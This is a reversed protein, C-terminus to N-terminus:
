LSLVDNIESTADYGLVSIPQVEISANPNNESTNNSYYRDYVAKREQYYSQGTPSIFSVLYELIENPAKAESSEENYFFSGPQVIHFLIVAIQQMSYEIIKPCKTTIEAHLNKSLFDKYLNDRLNNIIANTADKSCNKLKNNIKSIALDTLEYPFDHRSAEPTSSTNTQIENDSIIKNIYEQVSVLKLIEENTVMRKQKKPMPDVGQGILYKVLSPNNEFAMRLLPSWGAVATINMTEISTGHAVLYKVMEANNNNIAMSFPSWGYQNVKNITKVTAGHEIFYKVMDLNNHKAAWLLPSWGCIDTKNISHSNNPYEEIIFRVLNYNGYRAAAQLARQGESDRYDLDAGREILDAVLTINDGNAKVAYILAKDLIEQNM